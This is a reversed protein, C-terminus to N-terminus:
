GSAVHVGIKVTFRQNGNWPWFAVYLSLGSGLDKLYLTQGGTVGGMADVVSSTQLEPPLPGGAPKVAPPLTREVVASVAALQDMPAVLAIENEFRTQHQKVGPVALLDPVIALDRKLALRQAEPM